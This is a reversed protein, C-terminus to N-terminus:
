FAPSLSIFAVYRLALVELAAENETRALHVRCFHGPNVLEQFFIMWWIKGWWITQEVGEVCVYMCGFWAHSELVLIQSISGSKGWFEVFFMKAGKEHLIKIEMYEETSQLPSWTKTMELGGYLFYFAKQWVSISSIFPPVWTMEKLVLSVWSVPSVEPVLHAQPVQDVAKEQTERILFFWLLLPSICIQDFGVIYIYWPEVIYVLALCFQVNWYESPKYFWINFIYMCSARTEWRQRTRRPKRAYGLNFCDTLWTIKFHYNFLVCIHRYFKLNGRICMVEQKHVKKQRYLTKTLHKM